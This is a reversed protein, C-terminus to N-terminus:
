HKLLILVRSGDSQITHYYSDLVVPLNLSSFDDSLHYGVKIPNYNFHNMLYEYDWYRDASLRKPVLREIIPYNKAINKISPAYDISNKLQFTMYEADQNPYLISLDHLVVGIRFEAYRAQDALANGFSFAFVFLCWNLAFVVVLATKRCNSVVYICLIALFIGFGFLARPLYLPDVLLLYIGYSLIFSLAIVFFSVILSLLRKQKSLSVSKTVFFFLVFAIGTKWLIGWDNNITIAYTKINNLIGALMSSFPLMANSTYTDVHPRMLFFKFFLMSFSFVLTARGLFSGIEKMSKERNNWYQFCLMIVILPYIGSAVQYTMCMILLSLVSVFLFAKKRAMFLFPVISALISLAMYPSDYKYALCSLIYPSLGLPISALLRVATIKKNGTIYVLLVSSISLFVIALLQPLPSIDTLRTDAHVFISLIESIYRSWNYWYRSGDVARKIDDLYLYNARIVTLIGLLYVAFVWLGPKIFSRFDIESLCDKMEQKINQILMKGSNTLTCFDVFLIICIGGIAYFFLVDSWSQDIDMEKHLMQEAFHMVWQRVQPFLVFICAILGIASLLIIIKWTKTKRNFQNQAM